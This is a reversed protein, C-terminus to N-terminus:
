SLLKFLTLICRMKFCSFFYIEHFTCTLSKQLFIPIQVLKKSIQFSNSHFKFFIPFSFFFDNQSSIKKFNKNKASNPKKIKKPPNPTKHPHPPNPLKVKPFHALVPSRGRSEDRYLARVLGLSNWLQAPLDYVADQHLQRDEVGFGLSSNNARKPELSAESFAEKHLTAPLAHFGVDDDYLSTPSHLIPGNGLCGKVPCRFTSMQPVGLFYMATCQLLPTSAGSLVIPITDSFRGQGIHSLPKIM